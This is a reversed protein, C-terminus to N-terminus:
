WHNVAAVRRVLDRPPLSMISELSEWTAHAQNLQEVADQGFEELIRSLIRAVVDRYGDHVSEHAALFSQLARAADEWHARCVHQELEDLLSPEGGRDTM